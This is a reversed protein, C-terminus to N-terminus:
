SANNFLMLILFEILKEFNLCYIGCLDRAYQAYVVEQITWLRSFGSNHALDVVAQVAGLDQRDISM